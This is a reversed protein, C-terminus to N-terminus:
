LDRAVRFGVRSYRFDPNFRYRIASRLFWSYSYWEGGRLVRKEGKDPGKPDSIRSSPYDGYWDQCWELVNGHMDYLGWDNPKKKGVPHARDGATNIYWAYERLYYDDGDFSFKTTTGARCAYEWEAETPLRYKNMDEMQNLKSIFKQADKWSVMEVPCDEGCNKFRSPNDWMIEKWQGQSVETIQLYFPKSIIVKHQKEGDRRSPEDPPSGMDFNGAPILVFNMGISNTIAKKPPPLKALEFKIRKEEGVGLDIWRDQLVYEKLSVEFHYKGPELEMGQQFGQNFNLIKVIANEPVSEVFIKGKRAAFLEKEKNALQIQLQKLRNQLESLQSELGVKTAKEVFGEVQHSLTDRQEYLGKIQGQNDVVAVARELEEIQEYFREIDIRTEKEQQEQQYKYYFWGSTILLM